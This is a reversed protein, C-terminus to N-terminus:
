SGSPVARLPDERRKRVSDAPAATEEELRRAVEQYLVKWRVPDKGYEEMSRRLQEEAIGMSRLVGRGSDTLTDRVEAPANRLLAIYVEVMKEDSLVGGPSPSNGGCGAHLAALLPLCPLLVLKRLIM